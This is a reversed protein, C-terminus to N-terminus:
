VNKPTSKADENLITEVVTKRRKTLCRVGGADEIKNTKTPSFSSASSQKKNARSTSKRYIKTGNHSAFGTGFREQSAELIINLHLCRGPGKFILNRSDDPFYKQAGPLTRPRKPQAKSGGFAMVSPHVPPDPATRSANQKVLVYTKRGLPRKLQNHEENPSKLRHNEITKQLM